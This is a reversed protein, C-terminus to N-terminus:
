RDTNTDYCSMIELKELGKIETIAEELKKIRESVSDGNPYKAMMELDFATNQLSRIAERTQWNRRNTDEGLKIYEAALKSRRNESHIAYLVILVIVVWSIYM